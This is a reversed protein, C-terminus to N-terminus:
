KIIKAFEDPKPADMFSKFLGFIGATQVPTGSVVKGEVILNWPVRHGNADAGYVTAKPNETLYKLIAGTQETSAGGYVFVDGAETGVYLHPETTSVELQPASTDISVAPTEPNQIVDIQPPETPQQIEIDMPSVPNPIITEVPAPPQEDVLGTLPNIESAPAEPSSPTVFELAKRRTEDDIDANQGELIEPTAPAAVAEPSSASVEPPPPLPNPALDTQEGPNGYFLNPNRPEEPVPVSVEPQMPAPAIVEPQVPVDEIPAEPTPTVPAEFQVSAEPASIPAPSPTAESVGAGTAVASTEGFPYHSKLWQTMEQGPESKVAEKVGESLLMMAGTMAATYAIAKGMAKEKGWKEDHSNKEFKLYMTSLGLTRQAVIGTGFALIGPLSLTAASVGAGIGLGAGVLLKSKWGLKSYWEGMQRFGKETVGIKEAEADLEQSRRILHEESSKWWDVKEGFKGVLERIKSKWGAPTEGAALAKQIYEPVDNPNLKSLSEEANKLKIEKEQKEVGPKKAEATTSAASTRQVLSRSQKPVVSDAKKLGKGEKTAVREAERIESIKMLAERERQAKINEDIQEQKKVELAVTEPPVTNLIDLDAQIIGRRHEDELYPNHAKSIDMGEEEPIAEPSIIGKAAAYRRTEEELKQEGVSVATPVSHPDFPEQLRPIKEEKEQATHDEELQSLETEDLLLYFQNFYEKRREVDTISSIMKFVREDMADPDSSLKQIAQAHEEPSVIVDGEGLASEDTLIAKILKRQEQKNPSIKEALDTELISVVEKNQAQFEAVAQM